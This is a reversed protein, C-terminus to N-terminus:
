RLHGEAVEGCIDSQMRLPPEDRGQVPNMTPVFKDDYVQFLRLNNGAGRDRLSNAAQLKRLRTITCPAV